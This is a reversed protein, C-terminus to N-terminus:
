FNYIAKCQKNTQPCRNGKDNYFVEQIVINYGMFIYFSICFNREDACNRVAIFPLLACYYGM